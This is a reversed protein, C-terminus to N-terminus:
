KTRIPLSFYFTSGKTRGKSELWIDGEHLKIVKKSIYLGLGTGESFVDMGQGYREVKGFKKFIKSKEQKTFGIGSDKISILFFGKKRQSKIEILGNPPTYNIANVLLNMIVEYIREKEFITFMNNQIKLFITQNRKRAIVEIDSVVFRILFSLDEYSKNLKINESELNSTTLLDKVLHEMRGCGQKIENIISITQFDLNKYNPDLLLDTYGKITVLPTKLEHSTRTLLESKIKSVDKLQKEAEKIKTIDVLSILVAKMGRYMISKLIIEVWKVNKSKTILRCNFKFIEEFDEIQYRNQYEIVQPLDEIHILKFIDELTWEEIKKLPYEFIDSVASNIYKVLGNQYIIVGLVSQETITRFKEESERLKKEALKRNTIDINVGIINRVKQDIFIPSTINYYYQKKGDLKYAVEGTVIEGSFARSNNNKWISFIEENPAVERPTKGIVNGWSNICTTNQMIYIGKENAMFVDFPLSEIATKLRAESEKLAVQMFKRETIDQFSNIFITNKNDKQAISNISIWFPTGDKRKFQTEFDKVLGHRIINIFRKRENPDLYFDLVNTKLFEEKLDYGLINLAQSNCELIKGQPTTISVGVPVAETLEALRKESERAKKETERYKTIDRNLAVLGIPKGNTDSIISISTLIQLPTGDIRKQVVECRWIGHKFIEKLWYRQNDDPNVFPIIKELNKRRVEEVDWGYIIEAARNWTIINLNLDTSVIADSIENVLKAQYQIQEEIRKRATIDTWSGICEILKGNEDRVLNKEDRIWHYIGNKFKFRYEFGRNEGKRLKFLTMQIHKKDEPHVMSFWFKSSKIFEEQKYGTLNEINKSIFTFKYNESPNLKYIIIPSSSLIYELRRESENLKIEARKKDTIDIIGALDAFNGNYIVTKSYNHFWIVDGNKKICRFEYETINTKIGRQKKKAQQIVLKRDEPHVLNIFGGPPLNLLDELKYGVMKAAIKNIYKIMDDQLIIIGMLSQDTIYNLYEESEELRKKIKKTEIVESNDNLLIVSKMSGDYDVFAKSDIKFLKFFDEKHKLRIEKSSFKPSGKTKLIKKAKKLDDPYVLDFWSKGKLDEESYGLIEIFPIKNMYEIKNNTDLILILEKLNESM